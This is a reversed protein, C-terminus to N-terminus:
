HSVSPSPVRHFIFFTTYNFCIHLFCKFISTWKFQSYTHLCFRISEETAVCLSSNFVLKTIVTASSAITVLLASGDASVTNLAVNSIVNSKVIEKRNIITFINEKILSILWFWFLIGHSVMANISNSVSQFMYLCGSLFPLNGNELSIKLGMEGSFNWQLNFENYDNTKLCNLNRSM